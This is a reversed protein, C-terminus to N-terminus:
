LLKRRKTIPDVKSVIGREELVELIKNAKAYSIELGVMIKSASVSDAKEFIKIAENIQSETIGLYDKNIADVLEENYKPTDISIAKIFESLDKESIYDSQLKILRTSEPSTFLFEGRGNLEEAGKQDLLLFSSIADETKFAIRSYTNAKIMPTIVERECSQSALILHIGSYKSYQMIKVIIKEIKSYEHSIDALENIVIVIRPLVNSQYKENYEDINRLKDKIFLGMRREQEADLWRFIGVVGQPETIVPALMYPIDSYNILDLKHCDSFIFKIEEPINNEILQKITNHLFQIKGTGNEGGILLHGMRAIDYSVYNGDSDNGLKINLNPKKM